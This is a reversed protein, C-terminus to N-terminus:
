GGLAKILAVSAAFQESRLGLETRRASYEAAQATAVNLFSVTGAKYQNLAIALAEQAAQVAQRQVVLEESLVRVTALNDEVEQIAGLVTQRYAAVTQDYSAQAQAKSADRAGGDFLSLALAPGVSWFRNPLSFLDALTTGRQGLSGSLSITPYYAAIAIGIQANAAAMRREAAAIDPRRQLLASPLSDAVVPLTLPYGDVRAISLESPLRGTLVAIAHELTARQTGTDILQAQSSLLQSQAQAVDSKAVVGAEYRNKTLQLSRQFAAVSDELLGRQVDLARLAGYSTALQAQLSLTTAALDAASAAASADGSEISRRVSGWLDLEWSASLGASLSQGTTRLGNAAQSSRTVSANTGVTPFRAAQAQRTTAIAQRYKAEAQAVNQNARAVQLMLADLIPDSFPKWWETAAVVTISTPKLLANGINTAEKYQQPLERAAGGTRASSLPDPRQYNPGLPACATLAASAVLVAMTLVRAGTHQARGAVTSIM